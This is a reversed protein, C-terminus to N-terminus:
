PVRRWPWISSCTYLADLIGRVAFFWFAGGSDYIRKGSNGTGYRIKQETQRFALKISGNWDFYDDFHNRCIICSGGDATANVAMRSWSYCGPLGLSIFAAYIVALILSYM